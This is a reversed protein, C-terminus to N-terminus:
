ARRMGVARGRMQKRMRRSRKREARKMDRVMKDAANCSNCSGNCGDCSSGGKGVLQRVAPILAVAILALTLATGLNMDM